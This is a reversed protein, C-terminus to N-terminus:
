ENVEYEGDAFDTALRLVDQKTNMESKLFYIYQEPDQDEPVEWYITTHMKIEKTM